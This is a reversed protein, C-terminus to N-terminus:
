VVEERHNWTDRLLDPLEDWPRQMEHVGMSAGCSCTLRLERPGGGHGRDYITRVRFSTGGCFPCPKHESM